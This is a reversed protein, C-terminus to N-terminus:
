ITESWGYTCTFSPFAPNNCRIRVLRALLPQSVNEANAVLHNQGNQDMWECCVKWDVNSSYDWTFYYAGGSVSAIATDYDYSGTNCQYNVLISSLTVPGNVLDGSVITGEIQEYQTGECYIPIRMIPEVEGCACETFDEPAYSAIETRETEEFLVNLVTNPLLAKIVDQYTEQQDIWEPHATMVTGVYDNVRSELNTRVTEVDTALYLECIIATKNNEFQTAIEEFATFYDVGNWFLTGLFSTIKAIFVAVATIGVFVLNYIGGLLTWLLGGTLATIFSPTTYWTMTSITGWGTLSDVFGDFLYNAAQCKYTNTPTGTEPTVDDCPCPDTQEALWDEFVPYRADVYFLLGLAPDSGMMGKVFQRNGPDLGPSTNDIVSMLASHASWANQSNALACIMKERNDDIFNALNAFDLEGSQTILGTVVSTIAFAVVAVIADTPDPGPTVFLGAVGAIAAAAIGATVPVAIGFGAQVATNIVMDVNYQDCYTVVTELYNNILWMAVKCRRVEKEEITGEPESQDPGPPDGPSGGGPTGPEPPTTTPTACCFNLNRVVVRLAELTSVLAIQLTGIATELGTTNLTVEIQNSPIEINGIATTIENLAVIEQNEAALLTTNNTQGSM